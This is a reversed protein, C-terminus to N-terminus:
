LDNRGNLKMGASYAEGIPQGVGYYHNDLHYLIPDLKDMSALCAKGDKLAMYEQDVHSQIVRAIYINRQQYGYTHVVRCELNVPCEAIMPVGTEGSIVTFLAAKDVDRGSVIGCYDVKELMTRNPINLSFIGTQELGRTSYHEFHLAITVLAPNLGCISCDGLTAFNAKGDVLTGVLLIPIPYILSLSGCQTKM